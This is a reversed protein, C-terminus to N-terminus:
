KFRLARTKSMVTSCMVQLAATIDNGSTEATTYGRSNHILALLQDRICDTTDWVEGFFTDEELINGGNKLIRLGKSRAYVQHYFPVFVLLNVNHYTLGKCAKAPRVKNVSLQYGNTNHLFNYSYM